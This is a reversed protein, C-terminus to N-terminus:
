SANQESKQEGVVDGRPGHSNRGGEGVGLFPDLRWSDVEEAEARM